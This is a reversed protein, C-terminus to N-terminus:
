EALLRVAVYVRFFCRVDIELNKFMDLLFLDWGWMGSATAIFFEIRLQIAAFTFMQAPKRIQGRGVRVGSMIWVCDYVYM